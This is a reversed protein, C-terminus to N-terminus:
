SMNCCTVDQYVVCVCEDFVMCVNKEVHLVKLGNWVM